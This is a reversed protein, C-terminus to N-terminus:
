MKKALRKRWHDMEEQSMGRWKKMEQTDEELSSSPKEKMEEISWGKVKNKEIQM